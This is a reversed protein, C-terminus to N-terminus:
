QDTIRLYEEHTSYKRKRPYKVDLVVKIATIEGDIEKFRNKIHQVKISNTDITKANLGYLSTTTNSTMEVVEYGVYIVERYKNLLEQKIQEVAKDFKMGEMRGGTM